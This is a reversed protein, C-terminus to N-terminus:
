EEVIMYIDKEEILYYTKSDITITVLKDENVCVKNNEEVELVEKGVKIIEYLTTDHNVYYINQHNNSSDIKKLLVNKYLPKFM